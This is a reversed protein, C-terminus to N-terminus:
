KPKIEGDMEVVLTTLEFHESRGQYVSWCNAYAKEGVKEPVTTGKIYPQNDYWFPSGLELNLLFETGKDRSVKMQSM